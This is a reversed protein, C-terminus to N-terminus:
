LHMEMDKIAYARTELPQNTPTTSELGSFV